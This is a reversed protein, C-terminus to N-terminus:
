LEKYHSISENTKIQKKQLQLIFRNIIDRDKDTIQQFQCGCVASITASSLHIVEIEAEIVISGDLQITVKKIDGEKLNDCLLSFGNISIDIIPIFDDFIKVKVGM